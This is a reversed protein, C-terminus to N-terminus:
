VRLIAEIRALVEAVVREPAPSHLIANRAIWDVARLQDTLVVGVIGSGSPISVEFRGGKVQNTIPCVWVLGTAINFASPSVVLAPRRGAQEAGAHSSFDLYIFDGREPQYRGPRTAVRRAGASKPM